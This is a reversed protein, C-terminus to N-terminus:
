SIEAVPWTSVCLACLLVGYDAWCISHLVVMFIVNIM